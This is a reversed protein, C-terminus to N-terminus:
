EFRGTLYEGEVPGIIYFDKYYRQGSSRYPVQRHDHVMIETLLCEKADVSQTRDTGLLFKDNRCGPYKGEVWQPADTLNTVNYHWSFAQNAICISIIGAIKLFNKKM